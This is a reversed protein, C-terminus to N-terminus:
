TVPRRVKAAFKQRFKKVKPAVVFSCYPQNPNNQFHEQHYDEALYFKSAPRV